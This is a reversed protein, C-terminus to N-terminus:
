DDNQAENSAAQDRAIEQMEDAARNLVRAMKAMPTLRADTYIMGRRSDVSDPDLHRRMQRAEFAEEEIEGAMRRLTRTIGQAQAVTERTAHARAKWAIRVVESTAVPDPLPPLTTALASRLTGLAAAYAKLQTVDGPQLGHRELSVAIAKLSQQFIELQQLAELAADAEITVTKM